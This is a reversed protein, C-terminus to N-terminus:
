LHQHPGSAGRLSFRVGLAFLPCLSEGFLFPFFVGSCSVLDGVTRQGAGGKGAGLRVPLSKSARERAQVNDTLRMLDLIHGDPRSWVVQEVAQLFNHHGPLESRVTHKGSKSGLVAGRFLGFTSGQTTQHKPLWGWPLCWARPLVVLESDKAAWSYM